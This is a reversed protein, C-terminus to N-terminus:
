VPFPLRGEKYGDRMFHAQSSIEGGKKISESVDPYEEQYWNDDVAVAFPLRGEFYGHDVFHQRASKAAGEQIARAVDPYTDLYWNEDVDVGLLLLRIMQTLDEYTATAILQGKSTSIEVSRKIVEFPPVYRM